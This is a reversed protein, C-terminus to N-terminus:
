IHILSLILPWGLAHADGSLLQWHSQVTLANAASLVLSTSYKIIDTDSTKHTTGMGARATRYFSIREREHKEFDLIEQVEDPDTVKAHSSLYNAFNRHFEHQAQYQNAIRQAAEPSALWIAYSGALVATRIPGNLALVYPMGRRDELTRRALQLNETGSILALRALESSPMKQDVATDDAAWQSDPEPFNDEPLYSEWRELQECARSFAEDLEGEYGERIAM